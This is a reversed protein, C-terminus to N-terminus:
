VQKCVWLCAWIRVCKILHATHTYTLLYIAISTHQSLHYVMSWPCLCLFVEVNLVSSVFIYKCICNCYNAILTMFVCLVYGVSWLIHMIWEMKKNSQTITNVFSQRNTQTKHSKIKSLHVHNSWHTYILFIPARM